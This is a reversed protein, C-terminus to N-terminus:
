VAAAQFTAPASLRRALDRPASRPCSEGVDDDGRQLFREIAIMRSEFQLPRL